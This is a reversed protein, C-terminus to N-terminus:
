AGAVLSELTVKGALEVKAPWMGVHRGKLEAAKIAASHNAMVRNGDKDKISQMADRQIEDIDKLVSEQTIGTSESRSKIRNAIASQVSVNALLRSGQENATRKSYGARTAAQTANLDILYEDVFRMQRNTLKKDM